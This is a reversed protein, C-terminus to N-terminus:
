ALIRCSTACFLTFTWLLASAWFLTTVHVGHQTVGKAHVINPFGDTALRM